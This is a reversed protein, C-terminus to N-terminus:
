MTTDIGTVLGGHAEMADFTDLLFEGLESEDIEFHNGINEEEPSVDLPVELDEQGPGICTATNPHSLSYEQSTCAGSIKM